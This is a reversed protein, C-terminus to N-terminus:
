TQWPKNSSTIFAPKCTPLLDFLTSSFLLSLSCSFFLISGLSYLMNHMIFPNNSESSSLSVKAPPCSTTDRSVFVRESLRVWFAAVVFVLKLKGTQFLLRCGERFVNRKFDCASRRLLRKRGFRRSLRRAM